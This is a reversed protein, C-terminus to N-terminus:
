RRASARQRRGAAAAVIARKEEPVATLLLKAALSPWRGGRRMLARFAIEVALDCKRTSVLFAIKEAEQRSLCLSLTECIKAVENGFYGAIAGLADGGHRAKLMYDVPQM